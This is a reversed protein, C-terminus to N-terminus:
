MENTYHSIQERIQNGVSHMFDEFSVDAGNRRVYEAYIRQLEDDIDFSGGLENEGHEKNFKEMDHIFEEGYIKYCSLDFVEQGFKGLNLNLESNRSELFNRIMTNVIFTIREYKDTTSRRYREYDKIAVSNLYEFVAYLDRKGDTRRFDSNRIFNYYSKKFAHYLGKNKIVRLFCKGVILYDKRM